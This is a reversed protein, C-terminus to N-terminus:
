LSTLLGLFRFKLVVQASRLVVNLNNFILQLIDVSLSSQHFGLMFLNLLGQATDFKSVTSQLALLIM